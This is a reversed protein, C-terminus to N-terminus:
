KVPFSFGCLIFPSSMLKSIIYPLDPVPFLVYIKLSIARFTSSLLFFLSNAFFIYMIVGSCNEKVASFFNISVIFVFAIVSASTTVNLRIAYLIIFSVLLASEWVSDAQPLDINNNLMNSSLFFSNFNIPFDFSFTSNTELCIVSNLFCPIVVLISSSVIFFVSSSYKFAFICSINVIYSFYSSCIEFWYISSFSQKDIKAIFKSLAFLKLFHSIYM